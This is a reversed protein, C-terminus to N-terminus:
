NKLCIGKNYGAVYIENYDYRPFNVINRERDKIGNYYGALFQLIKHEYDEDDFQYYSDIYDCALNYVELIDDNNITM